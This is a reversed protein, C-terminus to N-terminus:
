TYQRTKSGNKDTFGKKKWLASHPKDESVLHNPREKVTYYYLIISKRDEGEPFTIPNPLGHYSKDHTDFVVLRNFLPPIQKVLREGDDAYIGFEGGWGEKWNKNLYLLANVRRHMGSADHYNGDVHIDLLGGSQTCNLGGGAFYPDPMLKPINLVEGIASLFQASNLIRVVDIIGDPIDFESAWTSRSKVEIGIRSALLAMRSALSM